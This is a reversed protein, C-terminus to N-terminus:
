VMIMQALRRYVEALPSDPAEEIVTMNKEECVQITSRSRM